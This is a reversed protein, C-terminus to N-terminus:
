PLQPLFLLTSSQMMSFIWTSALAHRSFSVLILKDKPFLSVQEGDFNHLGGRPQLLLRVSGM